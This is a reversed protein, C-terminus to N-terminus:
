PAEKPKLAALRCKCNHAMPCPEGSDCLGGCGCCIHRKPKAKVTRVHEIWSEVAAGVSACVPPEYTCCSCQARDVKAEHDCIVTPWHDRLVEIPIGTAAREAWDGAERNLGMSVSKEARLAKELREITRAATACEECYSM